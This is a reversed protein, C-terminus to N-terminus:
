LCSHTGNVFFYTLLKKFSSHHKVALRQFRKHHVNAVDNELDGPPWTGTISQAKLPSSNQPGM